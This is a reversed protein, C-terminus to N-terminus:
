KFLAAEQQVFWRRTEENMCFGLRLIFHSTIDSKREEDIAYGKAAANSHLPMYKDELAKFRTVFEEDKLNRISATEIAKLM